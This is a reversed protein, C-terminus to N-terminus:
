DAGQVSAKRGESLRIEEMQRYVESVVEYPSVWGDSIDAVSFSDFAAAGASLMESTIEISGKKGM